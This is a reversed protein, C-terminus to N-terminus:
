TVKSFKGQARAPVSFYTGTKQHKDTMVMGMIQGATIKEDHNLDPLNHKRRSQDAILDMVQM